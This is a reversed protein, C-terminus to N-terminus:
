GKSWSTPLVGPKPGHGSFGIDQLPHGAAGLELHTLIFSPQTNSATQWLSSVREMGRSWSASGGHLDSRFEANLHVFHDMEHVRMATNFMRRM